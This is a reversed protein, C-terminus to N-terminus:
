GVLYLDSDTTVSIKESGSIGILITICSSLIM